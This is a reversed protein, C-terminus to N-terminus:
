RAVVIKWTDRQGVACIELFYIGSQMDSVDVTWSNKLNLNEEKMVRGSLDLIRLKKVPIGSSSINV